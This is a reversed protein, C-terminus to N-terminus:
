QGDDFFEPPKVSEIWTLIEDIGQSFDTNSVNEIPIVNGNLRWQIPRGHAAHHRAIWYAGLRKALDPNDRDLSRGFVKDFGGSLHKRLDYSGLAALRLGSHDLLSDRAAEFACCALIVGSRFENSAFMFKADTALGWTGPTIGGIVNEAARKWVNADVSKFRTGATSVRVAATPKGVSRGNDNLPSIFHLSGCIGEFSRGAWWQDTLTRIWELFPRLFYRELADGHNGSDPGHLVGVITDRPLEPVDGIANNPGNWYSISAGEQSGPSPFAALQLPFDLEGDSTFFQQFTEPDFQPTPKLSAKGIRTPSLIEFTMGDIQGELTPLLGDILIAGSFSYFYLTRAVGERSGLSISQGMRLHPDRPNPPDEM